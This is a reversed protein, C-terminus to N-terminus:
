KGCLTRSEIKVERIGRNLAATYASNKVVQFLLAYLSM